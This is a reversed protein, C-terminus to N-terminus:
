QAPFFPGAPGSSPIEALYLFYLMLFAALVWSPFQYRMRGLTFGLVWFTWSLSWSLSLLFRHSLIFSALFMGLFTLTLIACVRKASYKLNSAKTRESKRKPHNNAM